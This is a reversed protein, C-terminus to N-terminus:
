LYHGSRKKKTLLYYENHSNSPFAHPVRDTVTIGCAELGAVKEPNNTMLRVTTHGLRKLMEAAPLFVREDADFGLRENADVTDFGQDQLSYAKLKNILGIGRGEQALYLLIGAGVRSIEAIAGRLQDGCDCKLSGLLDGTFCESHLRILVPQDPSPDGIVIALHEIGGDQPRFAIIRTNDAGGLPVRAAAVQQLGLAITTDYAMIDDAAVTLLGSAANTPLKLVATVLGAPLLRAIKLLRIAAHHSPEQAFAAKRFPGKMPDNLDKSADAISRLVDASFHSAITLLEIDHGSPNIHLVAARHATLALAPVTQSRRALDDLMHPTAVEAAGILVLGDNRTVAVLRGARLEGAAREVAIRELDGLQQPQSSKPNPPSPNEPRTMPFKLGFKFDFM